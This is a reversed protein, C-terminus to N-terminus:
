SQEQIKKVMYQQRYRRYQEEQNSKKKRSEESVHYASKGSKFQRYIDIMEGELPKFGSKHENNTNVQSTVSHPTREEVDYRELWESVTDLGIRNYLKGYKGQKVNRFCYLVEEISMYYYKSQIMYIIDLYHEPTDPKNKINYANLVSELAKHLLAKSIAPDEKRIKAISVGQKAEILKLEYQM